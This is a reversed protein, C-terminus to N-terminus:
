IELFKGQWLHGCVLLRLCSPNIAKDDPPILLRLHTDTPEFCPVYTGPAFRQGQTNHGGLGHEPRAQQRNTGGTECNADTKEWFQLESRGAEREWM